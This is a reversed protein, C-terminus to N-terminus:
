YKQKQAVLFIITAVLLFAFAVGGFASPIIISALRWVENFSDISSMVMEGWVEYTYFVGEEIEIDTREFVGVVLFTVAEVSEISGEKFNTVHRNRIRFTIQAGERIFHMYHLDVNRSQYLRLEPEFEETRIKIVLVQPSSYVESREVIAHFQTTNDDSVQIVNLGIGFGIAVLGFIITVILFNRATIRAINKNSKM